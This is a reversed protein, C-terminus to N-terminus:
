EETLDIVTPSSVAGASSTTLDIIELPQDLEAEMGEEVCWTTEPLQGERFIPCRQCECENLTKPHRFENSEVAGTSCFVSGTLNCRKYTLCVPCLCDKMRENTIMVKM